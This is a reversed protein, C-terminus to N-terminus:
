EKNLVLGAVVATASLAVNEAEVPVLGLATLTAVTGIATAVSFVIWRARRAARRREDIAALFSEVRAFSPRDSDDVDAEYRRQRHTSM